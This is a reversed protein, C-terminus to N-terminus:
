PSGAQWSVMMNQADEVAKQAHRRLDEEHTERLKQLEKVHNEAVDRRGAEHNRNLEEFQDAFRTQSQEFATRMEALEASVQTLKMRAEVLEEPDGRSAAAAEAESQATALAEEAARAKAEAADSLAQARVLAEKTKKLDTQTASLDLRLTSAEGEGRTTHQALAADHAKKISELESAHSTQLQEITRASQARLTQLEGTHAEGAEARAEDFAAKLKREHEAKM